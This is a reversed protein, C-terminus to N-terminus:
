GVPNSELPTCLTERLLAGQEERASPAVADNRESCMNLDETEVCTDLGVWWLDQGWVWM